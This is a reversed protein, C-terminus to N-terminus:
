EKVAGESIGFAAKSVSMKIGGVVNEEADGGIGIAVGAGGVVGEFEAGEAGLGGIRAGGAIRGGDAADGASEEFIDELAFEQAVIFGALLVVVEDGREVFGHAIGIGVGSEIPEDAHDFTAFIAEVEGA